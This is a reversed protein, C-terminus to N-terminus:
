ANKALESSDRYGTLVEEAGDFVMDGFMDYLVAKITGEEMGAERLEEVLANYEDPYEEAASEDVVCLSRFKDHAASYDGSEMLKVGESYVIENECTKAKDASDRFDGLSVFKDRAGTYDGDNMLKVGDSYAIENECTKAKDKADRFRRPAFVAQARRTTAATSCSQPKRTTSKM